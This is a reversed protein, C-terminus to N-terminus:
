LGEKKLDSSEKKAQQITESKEYELPKPPPSVAALLAVACSIAFQTWSFHGTSQISVFTGALTGLIGIVTVGQGRWQNAVYSLAAILAGFGLVKWDISPQGIFQQLVVTISGLLGILFVKNKQIFNKM